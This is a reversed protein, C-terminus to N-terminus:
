EGEGIFRLYQFAKETKICIQHTPKKFRALRLARNVDRGDARNKSYENLVRRLNDDAIAGEIYDYYMDETNENNSRYYEVTELWEEDTHEFILAKLTPHLIFEYKNVYGNIFRDARKKAMKYDNTLYFGKGFDYDTRSLLTTFPERIESQGGHYIIISKPKNFFSTQEMTSAGKSIINKGSIMQWVM